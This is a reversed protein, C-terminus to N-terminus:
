DRLVNPLLSRIIAGPFLKVRISFVPSNFKTEIEPNNILMVRYGVGFGVGIWKLIKYQVYIGPETILVGHKFIKRKQNSYGYYQFYSRGYGLTMPATLQWPDKDYFVYEAMVPFYNLYLQAKASDNHAYPVESDPLKKYEVIDSKIKNYGIGFRWQHNWEVGAKFGWVDASKSGVFSYYSDLQFFPKIKRRKGNFISPTLQDKPVIPFSSAEVQPTCILTFLLFLLGRLKM